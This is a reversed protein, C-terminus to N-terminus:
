DKMCRVMLGFASGNNSGETTGTGCYQGSVSNNYYFTRTNYQGMPMGTNMRGVTGVSSYAGTTAHRYGAFPFWMKGFHQKDTVMGLKAADYTMEVGLSTTAAGNDGEAYKYNSDYRWAFHFPTRYGPPCPDHMTKSFNQGQASYDKVAYGWLAVNTYGDTFSAPFWQSSTRGAATQSRYFTMPNRTVDPISASDAIDITSRSSWQGTEFDKVWWTSSASTNTVRSETGAATSPPGIIPDKRGWQYYFGYTALREQESAFSITSGSITPAHTAGLFRDLMTYNGSLVDEPKDTFWLHWTWLIEGDYDYAALIVNGKHFEEVQFTVYGESDPIGGDLFDMSIFEEPSSVGAATEVFDGQWWLVDVKAPAINVALGGNIEATTTGGIPLLSGVGNGRVNAKFKYYGTDHIMYCNATQSASLNHVVAKANTNICRLPHAHTRYVDGDYIDSVGSSLYRLLYPSEKVSEHSVSSSWLHLETEDVYNGDAEIYGQMPYWVDNSAISLSVGESSFGGAKEYKSINEWIRTNAVHYGAPCPDYITKEPDLHSGGHHCGWLANAIEEEYSDSLWLVQGSGYLVTPNAIATAADVRATSSTHHIDKHFPTHRGWQYLLGYTQIGENRKSSRAGLNRDMVAFGNAYNQDRVKDSIWIHWTWLINGGEHDYAAIIVNGEALLQKDNDDNPNGLIDFMVRGESLTHSALKLTKQPVGNITVDPTDDWLIDIYGPNLSTDSVGVIGGNGNGKVTADFCYGYNASTIMYCNAREYVSLDYYMNVSVEQKIDTTFREWEGVSVDANIVGHDSFRLVIDYAHGAKFDRAIAVNHNKEVGLEDTTTLRLSLIEEAPPAAIFKTVMRRNSIGVPISEGGDFYINNAPDNLSLTKNEGIYDISYKGTGNNPLTIQCDSPIPYAEMASVKGWSNGTHGNDSMSYIYIRYICLAHQFEMLNFNSGFKGTAVNGYMVDTAGDIPLTINTRLNNSSYRHEPNSPDWPYWAAYKIADSTNRFYQAQETFSIDRIYSNSPDPQGMQGRLPTDCNVFDPYTHDLTQDIRVLGIELSKDTAADIIGSDSSATGRTANLHTIGSKSPLGGWLMVRFRDNREDETNERVCGGLSLIAVALLIYKGLRNM